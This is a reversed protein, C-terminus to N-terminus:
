GAEKLVVRPSRGRRRGVEVLGMRELNALARHKAFRSLGAHQQALINSLVIPQGGNRWREYLLLTAMRWTSARKAKQLREVWVWPVRVYRREWEAKRKRKRPESEDGPEGRVEDLRFAEASERRLADLDAFPNPKNV